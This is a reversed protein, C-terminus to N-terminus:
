KIRDSELSIIISTHMDTKSNDITTGLINLNLGLVNLLHNLAVQIINNYEYNWDIIIAENFRIDKIKVRLGKTETPKLTTIELARLTELTNSYDRIQKTTTTM